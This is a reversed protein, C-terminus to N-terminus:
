NNLKVINNILNSINLIVLDIINQITISSLQYSSHNLSYFLMTEIRPNKIYYYHQM